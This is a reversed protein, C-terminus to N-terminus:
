QGVSVCTPFPKDSYEVTSVSPVGNVVSHSTRMNSPIGYTGDSRQSQAAKEVRLALRQVRAETRELQDRERTAKQTESELDRAAKRTEWDATVRSDTPAQSMARRAAKKKRKRIKMKAKREAMRINDLAFASLQSAPPSVATTYSPTHSMIAEGDTNSGSTQFDDVVPPPLSVYSAASNNDDAASVSSQVPFKQADIVAQAAQTSAAVCDKMCKQLSPALASLVTEVLRKQAETEKATFRTGSVDDATEAYRNHDLETNVGSVMSDAAPESVFATTEDAPPYVDDSDLYRARDPILSEDECPTTSPPQLNLRFDTGSVSTDSYDMFLAYHL